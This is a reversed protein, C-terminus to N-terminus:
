CNENTGDIDVNIRTAQAAPDFRLHGCYRVTEVSLTVTYPYLCLSCSVIIDLQNLFCNSYIRGTM